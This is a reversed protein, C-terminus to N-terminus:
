PIKNFHMEYGVRNEDGSTSSVTIEEIWTMQSGEIRCKVITTDATGNDPDVGVLTLKDGSLSYTGSGTGELGDESLNVAVTQDANFQLQIYDGAAPVATDRKLLEGNQYAYTYVVQEEWVGLIKVKLSTPSHADKKQCSFFSITFFALLLVASGPKM